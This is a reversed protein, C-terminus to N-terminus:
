FLPQEAPFSLLFYLGDNGALRQSTEPIEEEYVNIWEGFVNVLAFRGCSPDLLRRQWTTTIAELERKHFTKSLPDHSM